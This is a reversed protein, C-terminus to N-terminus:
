PQGLYQFLEQRLIKAIEVSWLQPEGRIKGGILTPTSWSIPVARTEIDQRNGGFLTPTWRKDEWRDSNPNVGTNFCSKNWNRPLWITNDKGRDTNSNIGTNWCVENQNWPFLVVQRGSQCVQPQSWVKKREVVKNTKRRNSIHEEGTGLVCLNPQSLTSRSDLMHCFGLHHLKILHMSGTPNSAAVGKWAM